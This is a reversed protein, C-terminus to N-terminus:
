DVVCRVSIAFSSPPNTFRFITTEAKAVRRRWVDGGRTSATWFYARDGLAEYTAGARFGALRAGFGMANKLATGEDTGRVTDYGERDLEATSMGLATELDKWEADDGLHSGDPCVTRAVNWTYLRGDTACNAPQDGYCFSGASAFALNRAFWVKTGLTILPYSAGDRPDAFTTAVPPAAEVGADAAADQRFDDERPAAPPEASCGTVFSFGLLISGLQRQM